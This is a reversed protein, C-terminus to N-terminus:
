KGVCYGCATTTQECEEQSCKYDGFRDYCKCYVESQWTHCYGDDDCDIWEARKKRSEQSSEESSVDRKGRFEESSEESSVDRKERSEESSEESSVDRKERSEESSEESSVDRKERSEESSEESSVDRKGRFEIRFFDDLDDYEQSSDERSEKEESSKDDLILVVDRKKRSEVSSEESSVDRKGRSQVPGASTHEVLVFMCLLAVVLLTKM